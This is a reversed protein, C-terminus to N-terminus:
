RISSCCRGCRNRLVRCSARAAACNRCLSRMTEATPSPRGTGEICGGQVILIAGEKKLTGVAKSVESPELGAQGQIDQITLRRGTQGAERAASLVREIPSHQDFYVEGVKTLSAIPTVTEKQVVILSKALLWEIAMSLQSPELGTSEALQDLTPASGASSVLSLLVKSELPHFNDM